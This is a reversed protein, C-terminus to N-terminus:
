VRNEGPPTQPVLDGQQIPVSSVQAIARLMYWGSSLLSHFYALVLAAGGSVIIRSLENSEDLTGGIVICVIILLIGLLISSTYRIRLEKMGGNRIIYKMVPSSIFGALISVITLTFGSFTASCTILANLIFEIKQIKIEPALHKYLFYSSVLIIVIPLISIAKSVLKRLTM